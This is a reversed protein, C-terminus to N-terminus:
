EGKFFRECEAETPDSHPIIRFAYYGDAKLVAFKRILSETKNDFYESIRHEEETLCGVLLGIDELHKEMVEKDRSNELKRQTSRAFYRIAKAVKERREKPLSNIKSKFVPDSNLFEEQNQPIGYASLNDKSIAENYEETTFDFNFYNRWIKNIKIGFFVLTSFFLIMLLFFVTKKLNINM